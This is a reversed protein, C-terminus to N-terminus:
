AMLSDRRLLAGVLLLGAGALSVALVPFAEDSTAPLAKAAAPITASDEPAVPGGDDPQPTPDDPTVPTEEKSFLASLFVEEGPLIELLYNGSEDQVLERRTDGSGNYVADVVYGEDPSVQILIVESARVVDFTDLIRRVAGGGQALVSITGGPVQKTEINAPDIKVIYNIAAALARSTETERSEKTEEDLELAIVGDPSVIGGVVIETQEMSNIILIPTASSDLVGEIVITTHGNENGSKLTIGAGQSKVDGRVHILTSASHDHAAGGDEVSIASSDGSPNSVIISGGIELDITGGDNNTIVGNVIGDDSTMTAEVDGGISTTLSGGGDTILTVGDVLGGEAHGTTKVDGKVDITVPVGEGNVSVGIGQAQQEDYPTPSVIETTVTGGVTVTAPGYFRGSIGEADNQSRATVDGEVNVMVECGVGTTADIGCGKFSSDVTANGSVDVTTPFDTSKANNAIIARAPQSGKEIEVIIDGDVTVTEGDNAKVTETTTAYAAPMANTALAISMLLAMLRMKHHHLPSLVQGKSQRSM